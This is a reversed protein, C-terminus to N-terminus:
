IGIILTATQIKFAEMEYPCMASWVRAAWGIVEVLSVYFSRDSLSVQEKRVYWFM